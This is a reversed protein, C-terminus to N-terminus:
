EAAAVLDGAKLAVGMALRAGVTDDTAVRELPPVTGGDAEAAAISVSDAVAVAVAVAVDVPVRVSELVAVNLESAVGDVDSDPLM